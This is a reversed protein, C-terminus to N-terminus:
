VSKRRFVKKLGGQEKTNKISEKKPEEKEKKSSEEKKKKKEKKGEEKKKKPTEHIIFKSSKLSDSVGLTLSVHSTKKEIVAVAGRARPNWRKYKPGGDVRIEKVFLKEAPIEKVKANAIASHLLKILPDSARRSSLLLQAEADRVSLGRMVDAMLRMKRPTMRAYRLKATIEKQM